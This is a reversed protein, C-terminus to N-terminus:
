VELLKPKRYDHLKSNVDISNKDYILKLDLQM